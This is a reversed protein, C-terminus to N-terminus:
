HIIIATKRDSRTRLPFSAPLLFVSSIAPLTCFLVLKLWRPTIQYGRSLHAFTNRREWTQGLVLSSCRVQMDALAHIFKMSNVPKTEQFSRLEQVINPVERMKRCLDRTNRELQEVIEQLDDVDLSGAGPEDGAATSGHYLEELRTQEAM